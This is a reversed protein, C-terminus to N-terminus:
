TTFTFNALAGHQKKIMANTAELKAVSEYLSAYWSEIIAHVLYQIDLETLGYSHGSFEQVISEYHSLDLKNNIFSRESM